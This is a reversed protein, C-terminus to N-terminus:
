KDKKAKRAAKREKREEKWESRTSKMKARCAKLGAKDKAAAVCSRHGQMAEIRKDIKSLMNKQRDAFKGAMKEEHHEAFALGSFLFATVLLLAKM